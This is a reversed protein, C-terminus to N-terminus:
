SDVRRALVLFGIGVALSAWNAVAAARAPWSVDSADADFGQMAGDRGEM